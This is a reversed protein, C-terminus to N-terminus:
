ARVSLCSGKLKDLDRRINPNEIQSTSVPKNGAKHSGSNINGKIREPLEKELRITEKCM